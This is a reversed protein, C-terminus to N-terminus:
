RWSNLLSDIEAQPKVEIGLSSCDQQLNSILRNMQESDFVSSGYYLWVNTCGDIKSKSTETIWGPGDKSGKGKWIRCLSEVADDQCCVVEYNDGLNRVAELYVENKAVKTKEAIKGILVWAYANADLSRKQKFKGFKLALKEQGKLEDLMELTSNRENLELTVQMKQNQYNISVNAIKGTLEHM